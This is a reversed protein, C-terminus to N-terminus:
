VQLCHWTLESLLADFSVIWIMEKSGILLIKNMLQMVRVSTFWHYDPWTGSSTVDKKSYFHKIGFNFNDFKIFSLRAKHKISTTQLM